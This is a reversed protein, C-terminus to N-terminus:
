LTDLRDSEGAGLVDLIQDLQRREDDSLKDLFHTQNREVMPWCKRLKEMGLPTVDIERGRGDHTSLKRAILGDDIMVKLLRSVVPRTVGIHDALDSPATHGEFAVGSLVCWKLRTLGHEALGSELRAQMLKSIRSMRFGLRERLQYDKPMDDFEEKM